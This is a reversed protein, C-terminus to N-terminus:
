CVRKTATENRRHDRRPDARSGRSLRSLIWALILAHLPDTSEAVHNPLWLQVAELGALIAAVGGASVLLSLGAATFLWITSGYVFCKRLFIAFGSEWDTTFIARFPIWSFSQPSQSFHFPALGTALIGSLSLVALLADRRPFRAPLAFWIGCALLASLCDTWSLTIGSVFLRVPLILLLLPFAARSYAAELLRGAALWMVLASFVPVPSFSPASFGALKGILHHTSLDPMFPFLLAGVWCALLFLPGGAGPRIAVRARFRSAAAIGIAAGTVNTLVDIMSCVRKADFLQIMEISSSLLAALGVPVSLKLWLPRRILWLYCSAGFPIYLVLNVAIDRLEYRNFDLSWSSLLIELPSGPIRAAHFQWPYLSGYVIFATVLLLVPLLV